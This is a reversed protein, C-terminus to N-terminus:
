SLKLSELNSGRHDEKLTIERISFTICAVGVLLGLAMGCLFGRYAENHVLLGAALLAITLLVLLRLSVVPTRLSQIVSRASM